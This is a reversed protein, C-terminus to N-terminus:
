SITANYMNEVGDPLKTSGTDQVNLSATKTALNLSCPCVLLCWKVSLLICTYRVQYYNTDGYLVGAYYFM